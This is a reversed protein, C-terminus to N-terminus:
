FLETKYDLFLGINIICMGELDSSSLKRRRSLSFQRLDSYWKGIEIKRVLYKM